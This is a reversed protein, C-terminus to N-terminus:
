NTEHDGGKQNNLGKIMADLQEAFSAFKNGIRTLENDRHESTLDALYARELCAVEQFSNTLM